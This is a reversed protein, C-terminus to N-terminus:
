TGQRATEQQSPRGYTRGFLMRLQHQFQKRFLCYIFFNLSSNINELLDSLQFYIVYPTCVSLQVDDINYYLILNITSPTQCVVFVTIIVIMVLTINNQDNSSHSTMTSRGSQVVKLGLMIHVNFYIVIVLPLIFVFLLYCVNEYLIVYLYM